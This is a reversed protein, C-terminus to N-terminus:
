NQGGQERVPEPFFGVSYPLPDTNKEYFQNKNIQM